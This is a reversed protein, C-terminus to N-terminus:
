EAGREARQPENDTSPTTPTGTAPQEASVPRSLTDPPGDWTIRTVRGTADRHEVPSPGGKYWRSHPCNCLWSGDFMAHWIWPFGQVRVSM